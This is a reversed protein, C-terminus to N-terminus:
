RAVAPTPLVLATATAAVGEGRGTFGLADSTTAAVSVPAGLLDSLLRQAEERRPSFKPRNGILQVSVNGIAFGAAEVLERTARLFVEGHADAFRPDATGFRSGIDGLGAAALLADCIAHAVPDGDSHGSLGREGPWHLGALWLPSADDFAHVDTGIGVRPVVVVPPPALVQEARALDWPTTIKFALPDGTVVVSPGGRSALLAADDTFDEEASAYAEDLLSRPFGQPTQVAALESRDVTGLIGGDARIRKITDTVPLGPIVGGGTERVAAIVREFQDVPTLARAADHVLVTEVAPGLARLGRAVSEQRSAGGAVVSVAGDPAGAAHALAATEELLAAPAVVVIQVPEALLLVTRLSRELITRGACDVYAKPRERGLRTGSGAAVVVVAATPAGAPGNLM